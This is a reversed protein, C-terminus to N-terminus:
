QKRFKLLYNEQFGEIPMEEVFEFGAAEIEARFVSKGARLHELIWERSQGEIRDFDVIILIGNEKLARHISALTSQPYEFHHYTDCVFALDISGEPLGISNEPCLVSTINTQKLTSAQQNIHELFRASIDIAYVWGNPGTAESFLRTYLGTGAGIDAVRYGAQIDCANLVHQRAAFVERSEIEFRELWEEPNLEPDLFKENIGPRVSSEDQPKAQRQKRQIYDIAKREYEATSLGVAAAERQAKELPVHDVLVRHVLWVAGVRNASGCHLLTKGDGTKLLVCVQDFVEDTLTEPARFPVGQFDMGAAEVLEKENWSIEGDTRLSIVRKIGLKKLIEIDSEAPQGSLYFNGSVHVNPTEGIKASEIPQPIDQANASGGLYGFVLLVPLLLVSQCKMFIEGSFVNISGKHLSIGKNFLHRDLSNSRVSESVRRIQTYIISIAIQPPASIRV